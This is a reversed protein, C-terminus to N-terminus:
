SIFRNVYKMINKDVDIEKNVFIYADDIMKSYKDKHVILEYMKESFIEFDNTKVIIGRENNAGCLFDPGAPFDLSIVPIKLTMAEIITTPMGEWLSTIPFIVSEKLYSYNKDSSDLINVKNELNLFKITEFLEEKLSGYGILNLKINIKKQLVYFSNLLFLINKQTSFRGIYTITLTDQHVSYKNSLEKIRNLNLFNPMFIPKLTKVKQSYYNSSKISLVRFSDAYKYLFETTIYLKRIHKKKFEDNNSFPPCAHDEIILKSDILKLFKLLCMYRNLFPTISIVVDPKKERIFKATNILIKIFKIYRKRTTILSNIVIFNNNLEIELEGGFLTVWEVNFGLEIFKNGYDISIRQGGIIDLSPLIYFIKM